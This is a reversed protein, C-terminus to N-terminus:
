EAKQAGSAAAAELFQRGPLESLFAEIAAGEAAIRVLRRAGQRGIGRRLRRAAQACIRGPYRMQFRQRRRIHIRRSRCALRARGPPVATPPHHFPIVASKSKTKRPEFGLGGAMEALSNFQLIKEACRAATFMAPVATNAPLNVCCLHAGEAKAKRSAADLATWLPLPNGIERFAIKVENVSRQGRYPVIRHGHTRCSTRFQRRAEGDAPRRTSQTTQAMSGSAPSLRPTTRPRFAAQFSLRAM